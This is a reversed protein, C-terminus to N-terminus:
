TFCSVKRLATKGESGKALGVGFAGNGNGTVALASVSRRRGLNGTM